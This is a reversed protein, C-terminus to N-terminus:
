RAPNPRDKKRSNCSRCLPQINEINSSGGRSVPIIHDVTLKITPEGKGCIWCTWNFQAKLTEWEGVSYSGGNGKRKTRYTNNYIGAREKAQWDVGKWFNTKDGRMRISMKLRTESSLKKGKHSQSMKAKSAETHKRGAFANVGGKKFGHEKNKLAHEPSLKRGMLAKARAAVAEPTQKRGRNGHMIM